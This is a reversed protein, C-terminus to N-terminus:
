RRRCCSALLPLANPYGMAKLTAYEALHDSVDAFLIQYVIIAGVVLGMVVGFTFVFGIPTAARGTTSSASRHVRGQHAGARRKPFEAALAERVREADAGPELRVLGIDILGRERM